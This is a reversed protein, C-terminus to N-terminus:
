GDRGRILRFPLLLAELAVLWVLRMWVALRSREEYNHFVAAGRPTMEVIRTALTLRRRLRGTSGVPESWRLLRPCARAASSLRLPEHDDEALVARAYRRLAGSPVRRDGLVYRTLTAAEVLLRRRLGEGSLM